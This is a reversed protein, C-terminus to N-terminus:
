VSATRIAPRSRRADRTSIRMRCRLAFAARGDITKRNARDYDEKASTADASTGCLRANLGISWRPFIAPWPSIVRSVFLFSFDARTFILDSICFPIRNRRSESSSPISRVRPDVIRYRAKRLNLLDYKKRAANRPHRKIGWLQLTVRASTFIWFAFRKRSSCPARSACPERGSSTEITIACRYAVTTRGYWDCWFRALRNRANGCYHKWPIIAVNGPRAFLVRRM